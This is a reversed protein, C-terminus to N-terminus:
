SLVAGKRLICALRAGGKVYVWGRVDWWSLAERLCEFTPMLEPSYTPNPTWSWASLNESRPLGAAARGGRWYNDIFYWFRSLSAAAAKGFRLFPILRHGCVVALWFICLYSLLGRGAKPTNERLDKMSMMFFHSFAPPYSLPCYCVTTRISYSLIKSFPPSRDEKMAASSCTCCQAVPPPSLTRSQHRLRLPM